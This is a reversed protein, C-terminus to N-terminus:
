AYTKVAAEYFGQEIIYQIEYPYKYCYKITILKFKLIDQEILIFVPSM